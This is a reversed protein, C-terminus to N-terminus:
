RRRDAGVSGDDIAIPEPDTVSQDRVSQAARDCVSMLASVV